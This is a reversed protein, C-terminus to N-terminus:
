SPMKINKNNDLYHVLTIDGYNPVSIQIIKRRKQICAYFHFKRHKNTENSLWKQSIWKKGGVGAKDVM